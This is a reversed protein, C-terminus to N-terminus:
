VPSRGGMLNRIVFRTDQSSEIERSLRDPDAWEKLIRAFLRDRIASRGPDDALNTFEGPDSELDYLEFESPDGHNYCLKWKGARVMARTRDTGRAMYEAFAEDKWESTEGRMLPLM